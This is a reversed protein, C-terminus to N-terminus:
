TELSISTQQASARNSTQTSWGSQLSRQSPDALALCANDKESTQKNICPRKIAREIESARESVWGSDSARESARASERERAGGGGEGGQERERERESETERDAQQM